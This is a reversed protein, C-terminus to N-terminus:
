RCRNLWSFFQISKYTHIKFLYIIIGGLNSISTKYEIQENLSCNYTTFLLLLFISNPSFM